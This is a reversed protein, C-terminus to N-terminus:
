FSSIKDKAFMVLQPMFGQYIQQMQEKNELFIEMARESNEIHQSRRKLGEFSKALGSERRYGALWNQSRMFPFMSGFKIGLHKNWQPQLLTDYTNQAFQELVNENLFFREDNALFYDYVIDTFAGAYLRYDPRFFVKMAKTAVHIDTFHDIARHLMIGHQVGAPYPGFNKGKVFDGIMNGTLLAPDNFSLFAHALYNM